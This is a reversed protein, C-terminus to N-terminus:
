FGPNFGPAGSPYATGAGSAYDKMRRESGGRSFLRFKGCLHSINRCGLVRDEEEWSDTAIVFVHYTTLGFSYKLFLDHFDSHTKLKTMPQRIFNVLIRWGM